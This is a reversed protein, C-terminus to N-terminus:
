GKIAGEATGAVLYRQFALFLIPVPLISLIMGATM